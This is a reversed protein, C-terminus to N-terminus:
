NFFMVRKILGDQVEYTVTVKMQFSIEDARVKCLHMKEHDTVYNGQVIRNLSVANLCKLNSFMVSYSKRLAEKGKLTLKGPFNYIEVDEHYTALFAEIDQNNYALLQQDVINAASIQEAKNDTMAQSVVGYSLLLALTAVKKLIRM